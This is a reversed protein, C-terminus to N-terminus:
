RDPCRLERSIESPGRVDADYYYYYYYYYHYYYYDTRATMVAPNQAPQPSCRHVRGDDGREGSCSDAVQRAFSRIPQVVSALDANLPDKVLLGAPLGEVPIEDLFGGFAVDIRELV